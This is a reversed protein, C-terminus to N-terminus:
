KETWKVQFFNFVNPITKQDLALYLDDGKYVYFVDVPAGIQADFETTRYLSLNGNVKLLEMFAQQGTPKGNRYIMKKNYVTNGKSYADVESIPVIKKEGNEFLIRAKSIGVNVKECEIRNEGTVVWSNSPIAAIGAACFLVGSIFVVLKKM